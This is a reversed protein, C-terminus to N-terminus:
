KKLQHKAYIVAFATKADYIEGTAVLQEAENITVELLEIFEDEDGDAPNDIEYLNEALYLHIIENAFGPSTAFSQIYTVQHAGYGTEEELERIATVGPEEGIEIRGAPIEILTRNLSKRFQKVLVLKGESTIPILAVAGPHQVLERKALNGDPLEVEELRLSIIKGDYITQSSLTKEEFKDM